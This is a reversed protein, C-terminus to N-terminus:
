KTRSKLVTPANRVAQRAMDRVMHIGLVDAVRRVTADRFLALEPWDAKAAALQEDTLRDLTWASPAGSDIIGRKTMEADIADFYEVIKVAMDDRDEMLQIDWAIGKGRREDSLHRALSAKWEAITARLDALAANLDPKEYM